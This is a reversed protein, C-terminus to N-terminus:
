AAQSASARRAEQVNSALQAVVDVLKPFVDKWPENKVTINPESEWGRNNEFDIIQRKLHSPDELSFFQAGTGAVERFIPIDSAFVHLGHHQAEVIPLGFGESKSSFLFAKSNQYIYNLADDGINNLLHLRKGSEPHNAIREMLDECKWGIRGVLALSVDQGEGWLQDFADLLYHHNKRIELTSVMLYPATERNSFIRRISAPVQFLDISRVRGIDCGLRVHGVQSKELPANQEQIYRWLDDEAAQADGLMFDISRVLREAWPAFKKRMGDGFFEPFRLPILDHVMAGVLAGDQRAQDIADFLEPLDWWSDPMLIVDGPGPNVDVHPSRLRQIMKRAFRDITRPYLLKRIRTGVKNIKLRTGTGVFDPIFSQWYSAWDRDSKRFGRAVCWRDVHVFRGDVHIIPYCEITTERNASYALAERALSRVVRQIGTHYDQSATHTIDILLRRIPPNM